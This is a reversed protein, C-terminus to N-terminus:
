KVTAQACLSGRERDSGNELAQKHHRWEAEGRIVLEPLSFITPVSPLSESLSRKWDVWCYGLLAFFEDQSINTQFFESWCLTSAKNLTSIGPDPAM